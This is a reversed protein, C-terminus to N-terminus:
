FSQHLKELGSIHIPFFESRPHTLIKQVAGQFDQAPLAMSWIQHIKKRGCHPFSIGQAHFQKQFFDPHPQALFYGWVQQLLSMGPVNKVVGLLSRSKKQTHDFHDPSKKPTTLFTGSDGKKVSSLPLKMKLWSQCSVM